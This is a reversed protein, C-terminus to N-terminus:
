DVNLVNELTGVKRSTNESNRIASTAAVATRNADASMVQLLAAMVQGNEIAVRTNLDISAKLDEAKGIQQRYTEYRGLAAGAQKFNEEAVAVTSLGTNSVMDFLQVRADEADGFFDAGNMIDLSTRLGDIRASVASNVDAGGETLSALSNGLKLVEPDIKFMGAIEDRIGSLAGYTTELQKLQDIGNNVMAIAEALNSGDFVPVGGARTVAPASVAVGTAIAAITLTLRFKPTMM